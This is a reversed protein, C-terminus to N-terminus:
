KVIAKVIYQYTQYMHKESEPFLEVLKDILRNDKEAIIQKYSECEDIVYGAHTFMRVIENFTFFHIHTKDLLGIETYTFYGRLLDRIVSIHMLNPICALVKGGDKLLTQVYRLVKEPNHLHELVDGFIIYDFSHREVSLSYDEINAVFVEDVFREALDVATKSIDCGVTYADPYLNKIHLLTAGCDCGVELVKIGKSGADICRGINDSGSFNFYHMGWKKELVAFDEDRKLYSDKNEPFITTIEYVLSNRCIYVDRKSENLKLAIDKVVVDLSWIQPDFYEFCEKKLMFIGTDVGIVRFPKDNLHDKFYRIADTVDNIKRDPIQHASRANTTVCGVMATNSDLNMQLEMCTISGPLLMFRSQMIIIDTEIEFIELTQRIAKGWPEMGNDFYVYSIDKQEKAWGNLGDTSGNDVLIVTVDEEKVFTRISSIAQVTMDKENHALVLITIM